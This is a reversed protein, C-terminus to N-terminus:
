LIKKKNKQRYRDWTVMDKWKKIASCYICTSIPCFDSSDIHHLKYIHGKCKNRYLFDNETQELINKLEERKEGFQKKIEDKTKIVKNIIKEREYQSPPINSAIRSIRTTEQKQKRRQEIIRRKEEKAQRLREPTWKLPRGHKRKKPIESNSKTESSEEPQNSKPPQKRKLKKPKTTTPEQQIISEDSGFFIKKLESETLDLNEKSVEKDIPNNETEM